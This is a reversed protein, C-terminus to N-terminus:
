IQYNMKDSIRIREGREKKKRKGGSSERQKIGQRQESRQM